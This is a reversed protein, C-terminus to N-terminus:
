EQPQSEEGRNIWVKVGVVGYTTRAHYIAYDIDVEFRSLPISGEQFAEERAIEAGNLRGSIIVKIGKAGLSMTRDLAQKCARRYAIRREIQSGINQGVLAASLEPKRNEIIDVRIAPGGSPYFRRTLEDRLANIGQGGRGIILGPKNTTLKIELRDRSRIIEVHGLGANNLKKALFQRIKLDEVLLKRYNKSAFWKSAWSLKLNLRNNIPNAKQGM